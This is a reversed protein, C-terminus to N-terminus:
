ACICPEGDALGHLSGCLGCQLRLRPAKNLDVIDLVGGSCARCRDGHAGTVAVFDPMSVVVRRRGFRMQILTRTSNRRVYVVDGSLCELEEWNREWQVKRPM